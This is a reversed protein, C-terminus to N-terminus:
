YRSQQDNTEGKGLGGGAASRGALWGTSFAAQLNYGGTQGDIDLVEGAFYLGAVLRSAMTRPDIERTDVGGATIIAETFPRYGTVPVRFDKLWRRLRHRQASTIQHGRTEPAIDTQELCVPILKRPLLGKLLSRYSRKGSQDLDRLLRADLKAEDLAPKLDIALVIGAHADVADVIQRSLTLIIPGSVGFSTFSMEGFMKARTRGDIIVRVKVNRLNLPALRQAVTGATTLPVLAPRVPIIPHGVSAALRYGDGTSGTAPYSAGGTAVIIADGPYDTNSSALHVGVVRGHEILLSDVPSSVRLEVGQEDIWDLLARVIERADNGVPFVRGGREVATEVGLEGLFAVLDHSFFRALAQRLFRGNQGFQEIFDTLEAINTLNCRGKGTLGLKRAPQAMKELVTVRAGTLAAQGAAMLGAVGGGVIIVHREAM